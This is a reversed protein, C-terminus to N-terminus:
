PSRENEVGVAQGLKGRFITACLNSELGRELVPALDHGDRRGQCFYEPAPRPIRGQVVPQLQDSYNWYILLVAASRSLQEPAGTQGPM